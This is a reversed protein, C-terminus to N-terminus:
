RRFCKCDWFIGKGDEGHERESAQLRSGLLTLLPLYEVSKEAGSRTAQEGSYAHQKGRGNNICGVIFVGQPVSILKTRGGHDM